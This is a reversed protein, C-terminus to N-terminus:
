ASDLLTAITFLQTRTDSQLNDDQAATELETLAKSLKLGPEIDKQNLIKLTLELRSRVSSPTAPDQDLEKIASIAFVLPDM